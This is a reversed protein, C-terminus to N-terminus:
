DGWMLFALLHLIEDKQMVNLMGAPMNSVDLRRRSVVDTKSIRRSAEVASGIRLVLEDTTEAEIRGTFEEGGRVEVEYAAYADAIVKSPELIAELLQKRDLRKGVGTLDPGVSGGEQGHRHCEACGVSRFLERGSGVGDGVVAAEWSPLLDAETWERVLSRDPKLSQIWDRMLRVATEDVRATVLPPMQGAGRRSIRHLLVSDEPRGPSVLMANLLGFSDHQPRAGILNMAEKAQSFELQIRANGGGAEVHCPSCNVHLYSRARLELDAGTDYPNVLRAPERSSIAPPNSFWKGEVLEKLQDHTGDIPMQATTLGLVYNVARSHCTMCETRSPFRWFDHHKGGDADEWSLEQIAGERAVLDADTQDANWRYSYGAWENQERLLVRTEIRRPRPNEGAARPLELTQVLVAGNPFGWGRSPAYDIRNTGPIALYRHAVMRDTWAAANVSYTMVGAAVRHEAVSEFLGTQSLRMPFPTAPPGSHRRVLRYLGGGHDVVWLSGKPDVRFAAIQLTTDALEQHWVLKGDRHRAGWIRGTSYDGYVYTGNLEPMEQGYYVVGGTLSRFESHPHEITPPVIPTPGRRRHPHFPRSGEYVSWGMNEGKGVRHATEWLDQGNQGVWLEGTRDDICLRWPNRFGYAWTEPRIGDRDVFPNDRPVSYPKGRDPHDVDIRLVKALLRSMDQGSDYTDSDSSGDGTSVFLTGDPGFALDGGDHGASFFSLIPVGSEPVLSEGETTPARFRMIENTRSAAGTPGNVFVFVSRNTRYGPHFTLGYILRGPLTLIPTSPPADSQNKLRVIRSPRDSEGGQLVVWLDDTGPEPALYLPNRFELHGFGKEVTYPSPPEPSGVLRSGTWAVREFSGAWVSFGALIGIQVLFYRIKM